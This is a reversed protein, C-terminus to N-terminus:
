LVVEPVMAAIVISSKESFPRRSMFQLFDRFVLVNWPDFHHSWGQGDRVCSVGVTTPSFVGNPDSVCLHCCCRPPSMGGRLSRAHQKNDNIVVTDSILCYM